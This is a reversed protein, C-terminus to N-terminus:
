HRPFNGESFGVEPNGRVYLRFLDARVPMRPSPMTFYVAQLVEAGTVGADACLRLGPQNPHIANQEARFSRVAFSEHRPWFNKACNLTAQEPVAQSPTLSLTTSTRSNM